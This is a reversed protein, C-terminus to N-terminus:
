HVLLELASALYPLVRVAITPYLKTEMVLGRKKWDVKALYEESTGNVYVHAIDIQTEVHRLALTVPPPVSSGRDFPDVCRPTDTLSPSEWCPRSTRSIM